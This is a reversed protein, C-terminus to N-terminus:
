SNGRRQKEQQLIQLLDDATQDVTNNIVSYDYDPALSMEFEARSLRLNIIDSSETARSVIRRRLEEFSPPMLFVFIGDPCASRVQM